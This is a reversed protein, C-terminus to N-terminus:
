RGANVLLRWRTSIRQPTNRLSPVLPSIGATLEQQWLNLICRAEDSLEPVLTEFLYGLRKKIAGNPFRKAYECLKKWSIEKAGEWVAKALEEISGSRDVDDACDILTKERDTILYPKGNLWEKTCGFYKQEAVTVFEYQVGFVTQRPSKKRKTTQVYVIRPIQETWNWHRVASWYAIAAPQVLANAILYSNESWRREPGAELPIVIYKGREIRAVWGKRELQYLKKKAMANNGWFKIAAHINFQQNNESSTLSLFEAERQGLM